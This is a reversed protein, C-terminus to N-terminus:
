RIWPVDGGGASRGTSPGAAHRSSTGWAGAHLTRAHLSESQRRRRIDPVEPCESANLVAAIARAVQAAMGDAAGPDTRELHRYTARFTNWEIGALTYAQGEGGSM